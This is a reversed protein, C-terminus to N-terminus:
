YIDRARQYMAKSKDFQGLHFYVEGLGYYAEGNRPDVEVVQEFYGRAKEWSQTRAAMRGLELAVDRAIERARALAREQEGATRESVATAAELAAVRERAAALEGQLRAQQEGSEQERARAAALEADRAALERQLQGRQEELRRYGEVETAALKGRLEDALAKAEALARHAAAGDAAARALEGERARLTAALDRTEQEAAALTKRLKEAEGAAQAALRGQGAAEQELAAVRDGAAQAAALQARLPGVEQRRQEREGALAQEAKAAAAEAAALRGQAAALEQTAQDKERKRVQAAALDTRLKETEKQREEREEALTRDAKAAAAEATALRSRASALDDSVQGLEKKRVQASALEERLKETEKQREERERALAREAKEAGTQLVALRGKLEAVETGRQDREARLAETAALDGRLRDVEQRHAERERDAEAQLRAQDAKLAASRKRLEGADGPEQALERASAQAAALDAKVKEMEARLRGRELQLVALSAQAAGSERRRAEREEALEARLREADGGAFGAPLPAAGPAEGAGGGPAPGRRLEKELLQKDQTLGLLRGELDRNTRNLDSIIQELRELRQNAFQSQGELLRRRGENEVTAQALLAKAEAHDPHDALLRTLEEVAKGPNGSELSVRALNLRAEPPGGLEISRVYEQVAEAQRRAKELTLGLYYHVEARQPQLSLAKRFYEVSKQFDGALYSNTGLEAYADPFQPNIDIARLFYKEARPYERAKRAEQGARVFEAEALEPHRASLLRFERVALEPRGTGDYLVALGHRAKENGPNADLVAGYQKEAEGALGRDELVRALNLRAEEYGPVLELAREFARQAAEAKGAAALAVGYNNHAEAVDPGLAAARALLPLAEEVAGQRFLEVGLRLTADFYDPDRALAERLQAIRREAKEELLAGRFAAYAELSKAPARELGAKEADTLAAGTQALLHEVGAAAVAFARGLEEDARYLPLERGAVVDVLRLELTFRGAAAAVTGLVGYDAGAARCVAAFEEPTIAEKRTLERLAAEREKGGVLRVSRVSGLGQDLLTGLADGLREQGAGGGLVPLLLFSKRGEASGASGPLVALLAALALFAALPRV